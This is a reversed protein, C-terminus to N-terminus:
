WVIKPLTDGASGEYIGPRRYSAPRVPVPHGAIPWRPNNRPIQYNCLTIVDNGTTPCDGNIGTNPDNQGWAQIVGGDRHPSFNTVPRPGARSSERLSLCPQALSTSM